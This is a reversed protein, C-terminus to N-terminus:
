SGDEGGSEGMRARLSRVWGPVEAGNDLHLRELEDLMRSLARGREGPPFAELLRLLAAEHVEDANPEGPM